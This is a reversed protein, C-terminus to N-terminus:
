GKPSRRARARIFVLVMLGVVIAVLGIVFYGTSPPNSAPAQNGTVQVAIACETITM